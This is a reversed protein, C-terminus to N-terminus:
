ISRMGVGMEVHAWLFLWTQDAQITASTRTVAVRVISVIMVFITLSFIGLLALKQGLPMRVNWLLIAPITMVKINLGYVPSIASSLKSM